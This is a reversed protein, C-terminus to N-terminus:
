RTAGRWGMVMLATFGMLDLWRPMSVPHQLWGLVEYM